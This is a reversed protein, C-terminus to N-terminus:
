PLLRAPSVTVTSRRRSPVSRRRWPWLFRAKPGAARAPSIPVVRGRGPRGGRQGWDGLGPPPLCLNLLAAWRSGSRLAGLASWGQLLVNRFPAFASMEIRRQCTARDVRKFRTAATTRLRVCAFPSEIVNTTRLHIWHEQPFDYFATLQEWDKELLDVAKPYADRFRKAFARRARLAEARSPACTIQRLMEKAEGQWTKPIQDLVNLTKHNWCRQEKAEPWIERPGAQGPTFGARLAASRTLCDAITDVPEPSEPPKRAIGTLGNVVTRCVEALNVGSGARIM